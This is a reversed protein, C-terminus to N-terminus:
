SVDMAEGGGGGGFDYWGNEIVSRRDLEKQYNARVDQLTVVRRKAGEPKGFGGIGDGAVGSASGGSLVWGEDKGACALLNIVTLYSEDLEREANRKVRHQLQMQSQQLNPLLAAAAGRFDNHHMRWAALIKPNNQQALIADIPAHFSPPFPLSLLQPLATPKTLLAEIFTPLLSGTSSPHRTLASYAAPIDTTSLSGHFLSEILSIKMSQDQSDGLKSPLLQLALRAFQAVQTPHHANTFLNIIHTYYTPLGHGFCAADM